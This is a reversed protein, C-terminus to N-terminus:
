ISTKVKRTRAVVLASASSHDGVLTVGYGTVALHGVSLAAHHHGADAATNAGFLQAAQERGVAGHALNPQKVLLVSIHHGRNRVEVGFWRCFRELLELSEEHVPLGDPGQGGGGVHLASHERRGLADIQAVHQEARGAPGGLHHAQEDGLARRASSRAGECHLGDGLHADQEFVRAHAHVSLGTGADNGARRDRGYLHSGREARGERQTGVRGRWGGGSPAFPRGRGRM